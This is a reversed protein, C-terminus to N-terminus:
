GCAPPAHSFLSRQLVIEAFSAARPPGHDHYFDPAPGELTPAMALFIACAQLTLSATDVKLVTKLPLSAKVVRCCECGSKGPAKTGDHDTAAHCHAYRAAAAPTALIAGLACHNTLVVWSLLM